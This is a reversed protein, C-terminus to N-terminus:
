MSIHFLYLFIEHGVAMNTNSKSRNLSCHLSFACCVILYSIYCLIHIKYVESCHSMAWFCIIRSISRLSVIHLLFFHYLYVLNHRCWMPLNWHHGHCVHCHEHRNGSNHWCYLKSQKIHTYTQTKKAQLHMTDFPVMM